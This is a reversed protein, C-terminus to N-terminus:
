IHGYIVHTQNTPFLNPDPPVIRVWGMQRITPSLRGGGKNGWGTTLAYESGTNVLGRAPLCANTIALRDTFPISTNVRILAIDPTTKALVHNYDPHPYVRAAGCNHGRTSNRDVVGIRINFTFPCTYISANCHNSPSYLLIEIYAAYSTEGAKTDRGNAIRSLGSTKHYTFCKDNLLRSEWGVGCDSDTVNPYNGIVTHIGDSVGIVISSDNTFLFRFFQTEAKSKNDNLFYDKLNVNTDSMQRDGASDITLVYIYIKYDGDLPRDGIAYVSGKDYFMSIFHVELLSISQRNMNHYWDISGINAWLLSTTGDISIDSNIIYLVEHRLPWFVSPNTKSNLWEPPWIHDVTAATLNWPYDHPDVTAPM